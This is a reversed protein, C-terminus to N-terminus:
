ERTIIILLMTYVKSGRHGSGERSRGYSQVNNKYRSRGHNGHCCLPRKRRRTTQVKVGTQGRGCSHYCPISVFNGVGSFSNDKLAVLKLSFHVKNSCCYFSLTHLLDVLCLNGQCGGLPATVQTGTSQLLALDQQQGTSVRVDSCSVSHIRATHTPPLVHTHSHQTPPLVHQTHTHTHPPVHTSLLVHQTHPPYYLHSRISTIQGKAQDKTKSSLM